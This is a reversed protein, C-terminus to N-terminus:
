INSKKNSLATHQWSPQVFCLSTILITGRKAFFGKEFLFILSGCFCSLAMAILSLQCSSKRHFKSCTDTQNRTTLRGRLAVLIQVLTGLLPLAPILRLAQFIQCFSYVFPRSFKSFLIITPCSFNSFFKHSFFIM